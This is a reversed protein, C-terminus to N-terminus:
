IKLLFSKFHNLISYFNYILAHVNNYNGKHSINFRYHWSLIQLLRKPVSCLNATKLAGVALDCVGIAGAPVESCRGVCGSWARLIIVLGQGRAIDLLQARKRPERSSYFLNILLDVLFTYCTFNSQNLM